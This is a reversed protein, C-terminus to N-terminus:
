RKLKVLVKHEEDLKEYLTNMTDTMTTIVDGFLGTTSVTNSTATTQKNFEKLKERHEYMKNINDVMTPQDMEKGNCNKKAEALLEKYNKM